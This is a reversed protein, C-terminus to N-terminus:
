EDEIEEGEQEINEQYDLIGYNILDANIQRIAKKVTAGHINLEKAIQRSNKNKLCYELWIHKIQPYYIDLIISIDDLVKRKAKRLQEIYTQYKIKEIQGSYYKEQQWHIKSDKFCETKAYAKRLQAKAQEIEMDYNYLVLRIKDAVNKIKM